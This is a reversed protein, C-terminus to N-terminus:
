RIKNRHAHDFNATWTFTNGNVERGLGNWSTGNATGSLITEKAERGRGETYSLKVLKGDYSYKGTLTDSGIFSAVGADKLDITFSKNNSATYKYSGKVDYWGKEKVANKIGQTWNEFVTTKEGFIPGSTIIFDALKGNDLSGIKDYMGLLTAPAKTLADLAKSETLGYEIAKRLNAMFDAPNALDATSLCFNVGAKELAAANGPALEWHKLDDLGVFRLDNPTM